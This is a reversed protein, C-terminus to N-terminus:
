ATKGQKYDKGNQRYEKKAQRLLEVGRWFVRLPLGKLKRAKTYGVKHALLRCDMERCMRPRRNHITCGDTGLYVCDGNEKHALMLEGGRYPHPETMYDDPNDEPLLRLIDFNKCCLTCGNCPVNGVDIISAIPDEKRKYDQM